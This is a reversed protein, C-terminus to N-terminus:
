DQITNEVAGYTKQVGEVFSAISRYASVNTKLWQGFTKDGFATDWTSTAMNTAMGIMPPERNLINGGIADLIDFNDLSGIIARSAVSHVEDGLAKQITYPSKDAKRNEKWLSLLYKIISGLIMWMFLQYALSRLNQKKIDLEKIHNIAGPIGLRGIDQFFEYVTWFIGEMYTQGLETIPDGTDETTPVYITNGEDDKEEKWYLLNGDEDTKHVRKLSDRMGPSAFWQTKMATLYTAFQLAVMGLATREAQMKVDHDYYGYMRDAFSKIINIEKPTYPLPLTMDEAKLNYGQENFERIVSLYLARQEKYRSDNTKNNVYVEFRQDKKIDYEFGEDFKCAEFCGDYHMKALLLSMRNFYDGATSTWFLKDRFNFIGHRGTRARKALINIDFNTIGLRKNLAECLKITNMDMRMLKGMAWLYDKKTFGKNAGWTDGVFIGITKWMGDLVDRIPAVINGAVMMLSTMQKVGMMHKTISKEEDSLSLRNYVAQKVFNKLYEVNDSMDVRTIDGYAELVIRYSKVIPLVEDLIEKRIYALEYNLVINEVNTEWFSIDESNLLEQRTQSNEESASFRNYMEYREIHEDSLRKDEETYVDEERQQFIQKSRQLGSKINEFENKIADGAMGSSLRSSMTGKMLPVWYWKDLKKLEDVKKNDEQTKINFRRKNIIWLVKKLFAREDPDLNSSSDYPNKFMMQGIIKGDKERFLNRYMSQNGILKDQINGYGKARHFPKVVKYLFPEQFNSFEDRILVFSERVLSVVKSLNKDSLNDPTATYRGELLTKNDISGIKGISKSQAFYGSKIYVISQNILLWLNVIDVSRSGKALRANHWDTQLYAYNSELIEKFKILQELIEKEKHPNTKELESFFNTLDKNNELTKSALLSKVGNKIMELDSLWTMQGLNNKIGTEKCLQAFSHRLVKPQVLTSKGSYVNLVKIDGIQFTRFVDDKEAMLNLASMLKILQINGLTSTLLGKDNEVQFNKKFSGLISTGLGLNVEENLNQEDSLILFDIQGTIKNQLSIIGLEELAMINLKSWSGGSYKSLNVTLSGVGQSRSALTDLSLDRRVMKGIGSIFYRSSEFKAEERKKLYEYVKERLEVNNKIPTSEKVYVTLGTVRDDFEYSYDPNASPRISSSKIFGNVRASEMTIALDRKPFFKFLTQNVEDAIGGNIQKFNYDSAIVAQADEALRGVRHTLGNTGDARLVTRRDVAPEFSLKKVTGTDENVEMHIPVINLSSQSMDYGKSELLQRDFALYYDRKLDVVNPQNAQLKSSTKFLYIHPVGQADVVILDINSYLKRDTGIIDATVSYNPFFAVQKYDPGCDTVKYISSRVQILQQIASQIFSTDFTSILKDPLIPLLEKKISLAMEMIDSDTMHSKGYRFFKNIIFHTYYSTEELNEYMKFEKEVLKQAEIRSHGKKLLQEFRRDRLEESNYQTIYPEGNIRSGKEIVEHIDDFKDEIDPDPSGFVEGIQGSYKRKRLQVKSNKNLDALSEVTYKFNVTGKQEESYIVDQLTYQKHKSKLATLIENQNDKILKVLNEYSYTVGKYKYNCNM